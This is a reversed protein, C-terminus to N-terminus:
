CAEDEDDFDFPLTTALAPGPYGAVSPQGWRNPHECMHLILDESFQLFTRFCDTAGVPPHFDDLPMVRNRNHPGGIATDVYPYSIM